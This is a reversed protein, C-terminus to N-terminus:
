ERGGGRQQKIQSPLLLEKLEEFQKDKINDEECLEKIKEIMEVKFEDDSKGSLDLEKLSKELSIIRDKELGFNEKIFGVASEITRQNADEITTSSARSRYGGTNEYSHKDQLTKYEHVLSVANDGIEKIKDEDAFTPWGKAHTESKSHYSSTILHRTFIKTM